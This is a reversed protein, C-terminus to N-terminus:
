KAFKIYKIYKIKNLYKLFLEHNHRFKIHKLNRINLIKSLTLRIEQSFLDTSESVKHGITANNIPHHLKMTLIPIICNEVFLRLVACFAIIITVNPLRCM